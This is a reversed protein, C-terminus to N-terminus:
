DLRLISRGRVGSIGRCTGQNKSASLTTKKLTVYTPVIKKTQKNLVNMDVLSM